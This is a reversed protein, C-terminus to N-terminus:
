LHAGTLPAPGADPDLLYDTLGAPVVDPEARAAPRLRRFRALDGRSLSDAPGNAATPVFAVSLVCDQCATVFLLHRVLDMIRPDGSWGRSVCGVVGMNDSLVRVRKGRWLDRWVLCSVLHPVLELWTMSPATSMDLTVPWPFLWWRRGYCAGTGRRSSDTYFLVDTDQDDPHLLPFTGSWRPLYEAWWRLDARAATTLRVRHLPASVSCALELLRRTFARGPPVCNAAHVLRGVVSLLEKRTCKRRPLLDGITDRLAQLKGPPLGVTMSATDIRVGLLTLTTTPAVCKETALPMRVTACVDQMARYARAADPSGPPAVVWFDDLYKRVM